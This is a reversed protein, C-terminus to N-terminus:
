FIVYDNKPELLEMYNKTKLISKVNNLISISPVDMGNLEFVKLVSFIHQYLKKDKILLCILASIYISWHTIIACSSKYPMSYILDVIEQIKKKILRIDRTGIFFYAVYLELGSISILECYKITLDMRFDELELRIYNCNKKIDQIKRLISTGKDHLTEFTRPDVKRTLILYIFNMGSLHIGAQGFVDVIDCVEEFIVGLNSKYGNMYNIGNKAISFNTRFSDKELEIKKSPFGLSSLVALRSTRKYQEVVIDFLELAARDLPNDLNVTNRVSFCKLILQHNGNLHTRWSKDSANGSFIILVAFSLTVLDAFKTSNELGTKLYNICERFSIKGVKLDWESAMRVDKAQSYIRCIHLSCHYTVISQFIPNKTGLKFCLRLVSMLKEDPFLVFTYFFRSLKTFTWVFDILKQDHISLNKDSTLPDHKRIVDIFYVFPGCDWPLNFVNLNPLSCGSYQRSHTNIPSEPLGVEEMEITILDDLQVERPFDQMYQYIQNQTPMITSELDNSRKTQESEIAKGLGPINENHAMHCNSIAKEQGLVVKDYIHDGDLPLPLFNPIDLLSYDNNPNKLIISDDINVSYGNETNIKDMKQPINKSDDSSMDDTKRFHENGFNENILNFVYVCQINKRQCRSCSPQREDCKVHAKKCQTCGKRSYQTSKRRGKSVEMRSQEQIARLAAYVAGSEGTCKLLPTM